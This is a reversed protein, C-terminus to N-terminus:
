VSDRSSKSAKAVEALAVPLELVFSLEDDAAASLLLLLVVSLRILPEEVV